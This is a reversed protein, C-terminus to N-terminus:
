ETVGVWNLQWGTGLPNTFSVAFNLAMAPPLTTTVLPVPQFDQLVGQDDVLEARLTPLSVQRNTTNVLTGQVTLVTGATTPLSAAQVGHLVVGAPAAIVQTGPMVTPQYLPVGGIVPPPRLQQWLALSAALAGAVTLVLALTLWKQEGVVYAYWAPRTLEALSVERGPLLVPEPASVIAPEALPPVPDIEANEPTRSVLPAPTVTPQDDVRPGDPASVLWLHGCQACKLKRGHPGIKALPVQYTAGCQPCAAALLAEPANM